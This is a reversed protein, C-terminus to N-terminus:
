QLAMPGKEVLVMDMLMKEMHLLVSQAVLVEGKLPIPMIVQGLEEEVKVM